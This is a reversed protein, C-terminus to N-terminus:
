NGSMEMSKARKEDEDEVGSISTSMLLSRGNVYAVRSQFVSRGTRVGGDPHELLLQPTGGGPPLSAIAGGKNM